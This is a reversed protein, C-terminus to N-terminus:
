KPPIKERRIHDILAQNVAAGLDQKPEEPGDTKEQFWDIM